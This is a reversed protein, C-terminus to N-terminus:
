ATEEWDDKTIEFTAVPPLTPAQMGPPLQMPVQQPQMSITGETLYTDATKATEVYAREFRHTTPAPSGGGQAAAVFKSPDFKTKLDLDQVLLDYYDLLLEEVKEPPEEIPLGLAKAEPRNIFHMHTYFATTLRRIREEVGEREADPSHLRILKDALQRIQSISRHVNGLALPHVSEALRAFAGAVDEDRKVGQDNALEFYAMVDEVAIPIRNQPNTPDQPNFANAVSPDIPSLTALKTMYIQDAGLCILTGASHAFFPVLVVVEDVYARLFNVIPWAANTDGGRTYLLLGARKQKGIAKLHRPFLAIQEAAIQAGLNPRDGTVYALVPHGLEAELAELIKVREDRPL